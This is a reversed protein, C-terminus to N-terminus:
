SEDRKTDTRPPAHKARMKAIIDPDYMDDLTILDVNNAEAGLELSDTFGSRSFIIYNKVDLGRVNDASEFLDELATRDAYKNKFRCEGLLGIRRGESGYTGIVDIEGTKKGVAGWWKGTIPYGIRKVFQASINEFVKGMYDPMDKEINKATDDVTESMLIKRKNMAVYYRFRFLNDSIFYLTRKGNKENFPEVKEIYGLDILDALYKSTDSTSIGSHDSIESLRAKGAAMAEITANYLRPDKLEQMILSEPETFLTFGNTFFEEAMIKFINQKGSFKKLYLPVGGVAGYVCAKEYVSREELFEAAELYDMPRIFMERTRRGYLPSEGGLVQRKMFNMSSGTLVLFLKSFQVKRDIFVQLASLLEDNSEAFYPLEDIVFTIRESSHEGITRLLALLDMKETDIGLSDSVAERLLRINMDGKTRMGTVFVHKKDKVFEELIATKGVRRRGYMVVFEFKDSSYWENLANLERRRGILDNMGCYRQRSIYINNKEANIVLLM